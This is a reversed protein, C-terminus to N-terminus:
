PFLEPKNGKTEMYVLYMEYQEPTLNNQAVTDIGYNVLSVNLIYYEYPVQINYTYEETCSEGTDPDTYTYTETITETRYRIETVPTLTLRYQQSLIVSLDGQVAARTYANYKATLYSALAFPDHGIPDLSYNYEDYGGYDGPINAIQAALATELAAYDENAGLIDADEATYSTGIVANFGGSFMGACSSIGSLLIMLLLLAGGIIAIAKWNKVAFKVTKETTEKAKKAAKKAKQATQKVGDFNGQRFAKAYDKKIKRKHAAKKFAGANELEPKTLLDRKYLANVNAKIAKNEAKLLKRQPEFQLRQHVRGAFRGASEAAEETSHAAQVGTNDGEHARIAGHAALGAERKPRDLAHTLKGNPPKDRERFVLRTKTKGTPEDLVRKSPPNKKEPIKASKVTDGPKTPVREISLVKEKPIRARAKEYRNAAKDSKKITKAMSPDGRESDSFTLRLTEPRHQGREFIKRNAKRIRKKKINRRESLVRDIVDGASIGGGPERARIHEAGGTAKNVEVVGGRTMQQVIKDPTKLEKL